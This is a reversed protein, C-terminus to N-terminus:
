AMAKVGQYAERANRFGAETLREITREPLSKKRHQNPNGTYHYIRGRKSLIRRCERYFDVEYLEPALAFRPPDHLIAACSKDSLTLIGDVASQHHISIKENNWLGASWPNERCLALMNADREFVTVHAVGPKSALAQATYGLGCCIDVVGGEIKGLERLKRETDLGPHGDMTVHMKIGSIEVTPPKGELVFIMKYFKNTEEDFRQWKQWEGDKYILITRENTLALSPVPLSVDNFRIQSDKVSVSRFSKGCDLSLSVHESFDLKQIDPPTLFYLPRM